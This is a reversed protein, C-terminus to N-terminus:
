VQGQQQGQQGQPESQQAQQQGQQDHGGKRDKRPKSPGTHSSGRSSSLLFGYCGNCLVAGPEGGKTKIAVLKSKKEKRCRSCQFGQAYALRYQQMGGRPPFNKVATVFHSPLTNEGAMKYDAINEGNLNNCLLAVSWVRVSPDLVISTSPRSATVTLKVWFISDECSMHAHCPEGWGNLCRNTISPWLTAFRRSWTSRRGSGISLLIHSPPTPNEENDKQRSRM